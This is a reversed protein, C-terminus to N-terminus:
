NGSEAELQAQKFNVMKNAQELVDRFLDPIAKFADMVNQKTFPLISGDESEIGQTWKDGKLVEWNRVITEAYVERMIEDAVAEPLAGLEFARRYPKAKLELAKAFARNVGGARAVTVRFTGYNFVVGKDELEPDTRFMDYMSM